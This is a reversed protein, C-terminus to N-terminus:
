LHNTLGPMGMAHLICRRLETLIGAPLIPAQYARFGVKFRDLRHLGVTQVLDCKAWSEPYRGGPIVDDPLRYHYPQPNRPASSSIPVVSCLGSNFRPPPSIVIVPRTKVIEPRQFGLGFHCALLQGEYPQFKLGNPLPDNTVASVFDRLQQALADGNRLLRGVSRVIDADNEDVVVQVPIQAMFGLAGSTGSEM